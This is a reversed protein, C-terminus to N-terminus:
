AHHVAFSCFHVCRCLHQSTQIGPSTSALDIPLKWPPHRRHCSYRCRDSSWTLFHHTRFRSQSLAHQSFWFSFEPVSNWYIRGNEKCPLGDVIVTPLKSLHLLMQVIHQHNELTTTPCVIAHCLLTFLHYSIKEGKWLLPDYTKAIDHAASEPDVSEVLMDQIISVTRQEEARSSCFNNSRETNGWDLTMTRRAITVPHPRLCPLIKSCMRGKSQPTWLHIRLVDHTFM